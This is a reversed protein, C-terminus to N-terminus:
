AARIQEGDQVSLIREERCIVQQGLDTDRAHLREDTEEIRQAAPPLVTSRRGHHHRCSWRGLRYLGAASLVLRTPVIEDTCRPSGADDWASRLDKTTQNHTLAHRRSSGRAAM